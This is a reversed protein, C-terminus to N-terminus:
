NLRLCESEAQPSLHYQSLTAHNKPYQRSSVLRFSSSFPYPFNRFRCPSSNINGENNRTDFQNKGKRYHAANPFSFSAETGQKPPAAIYKLYTFIM